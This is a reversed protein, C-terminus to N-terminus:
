QLFESNTVGFDSGRTPSNWNNIKPRTKTHKYMHTSPLKKKDCGLCLTLFSMFSRSLKVKEPVFAQSPCSNYPYNVKIVLSNTTKM